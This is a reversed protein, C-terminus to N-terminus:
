ENLNQGGDDMKQPGTWYRYQPTWEDAGFGAVAKDQLNRELAEVPRRPMLGADGHAKRANVPQPPVLRRGLGVAQLRQLGQQRGQQRISCGPSRPGQRQPEPDSGLPQLLILHDQELGFDM